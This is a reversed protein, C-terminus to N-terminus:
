YSRRLPIPARRLVELRQDDRATSFNTTGTLKRQINKDYPGYRWTAPNSQQASVPDAGIITAAILLVWFSMRRKLHQM